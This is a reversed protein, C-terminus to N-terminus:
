EDEDPAHAAVFELVLSKLEQQEAATLYDARVRVSFGDGKREISVLEGGTPVVRKIETPKALLRNCVAVATLGDGASMQRAQALVEDGREKMATALKRAMAFQIEHPSAFAGIVEPPLDAVLLASSINGQSLGCAKAMANQSPWLGESLAKKYWVGQEWASLNKRARNEQDMEVFQQQESLSEDVLALVPLGLELCARHRRHGFVIEYDGEETPAPRVKIPQTNGNTQAILAKLEDFPEDSFSSDHRNAWKSRRVKTSDILRTPTSGEFVKLQAELESVRDANERMASRFALMQGPATRPAAAPGNSSTPTKAASAVTLDGTKKTLRDKLSM